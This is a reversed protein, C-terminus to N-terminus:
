IWGAGAWDTSPPSGYAAKRTAMLSSEGVVMDEEVAAAEVLVVLVAPIDDEEAKEGMEVIGKDVEKEGSAVM